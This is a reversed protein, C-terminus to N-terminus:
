PTMGMPPEKRRILVDATLALAATSVATELGTRVVTLPDVIGGTWSDVWTHRLVDFVASQDQTAARRRAEHVMPAVELGANALIVRMPEALAEALAKVGVGVAQDGGVDMAELAPICGILAAGGGPVV